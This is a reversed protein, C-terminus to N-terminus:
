HMEGPHAVCMVTATQPCHPCSLKGTAGDVTPPQEHSPPRQASEHARRLLIPIQSKEAKRGSSKARRRRVPLFCGKSEEWRWRRVHGALVPHRHMSKGRTRWPKTTALCDAADLRGNWRWSIVDAAGVAPQNREAERM